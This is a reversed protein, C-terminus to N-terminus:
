PKPRTEKNGSRLHSSPLRIQFYTVVAEKGMRELENHPAELLLCLGAIQLAGGVTKVYM